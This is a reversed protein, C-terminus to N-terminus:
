PTEMDELKAIILDLKRHISALSDGAEDHPQPSAVAPPAPTAASGWRRSARLAPLGFQQPDVGVIALAGALRKAPPNSRGSLWRFVTQHSIDLHYALDEQSWGNARMVERLAELAGESDAAVRRRYAAYTDDYTAVNSKCTDNTDDIM